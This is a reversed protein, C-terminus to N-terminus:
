GDRTSGNDHERPAQVSDHISFSHGQFTENQVVKEQTTQKGTM